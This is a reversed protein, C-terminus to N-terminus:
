SCSYIGQILGNEDMWLSDYEGSERGGYLTEQFVLEEIEPQVWQMQEEEKCKSRIDTQM